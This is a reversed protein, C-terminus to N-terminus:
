PRNSDWSPGWIDNWFVLILSTGNSIIIVILFILVFITRIAILILHAEGVQHLLSDLHTQPPALSIM